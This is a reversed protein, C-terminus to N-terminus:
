VFVAVKLIVDSSIPLGWNQYHKATSKFKCHDM